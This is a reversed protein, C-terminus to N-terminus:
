AIRKAVIWTDKSAGSVNFKIAGTTAGTDRASVKLSAAPASIIGTMAISVVGNAGSSGGGGGAVATTGDWLKALFNSSGATDLVTVGAMVEWTGVTGQAVSPGDFFNATNNLTVDSGQVTVYVVAWQLVDWGNSGNCVLRCRGRPVNIAVQTTNSGAIIDSGNPVLSIKNTASCSGSGDVIDITRGAVIGSAAPLTVSRAASLSTFVITRDTDAVTVGADAIARRVATAARVFATSAASTDNDGATATPVVITGGTFDSTGTFTKNGAITEDGTLGVAGLTSRAIAASLAPLVTQMFTSVGSLAGTGLIAFALTGGIVPSVTTLQWITGNYLTGAIVAVITGQVFDGSGDFDPPRSWNGGDAVYIGNATTDSQSKVLVRDGDVLSVGDITQLGSLTINATTAIRCPAKIAVATVLGAIRDTVTM